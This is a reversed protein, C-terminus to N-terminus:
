ELLKAPWRAARRSAREHVHEVYWDGPLALTEGPLWTEALPLLVHIEREIQERLDKRFEDLAPVPAEGAAVICALLAVARHVALLGEVQEVDAAAIEKLAPYLHEEQLALHATVGRAIAQAAACVGASGDRALEDLLDLQRLFVGNEANLRDTIRM